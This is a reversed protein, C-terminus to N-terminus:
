QHICTEAVLDLSGETFGVAEVSLKAATPHGAHEHSVFDREAAGDRQFDERRLERCADADLPEVAFDLHRRAELM